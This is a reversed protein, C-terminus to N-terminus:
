VSIDSLDWLSTFLCSNGEEAVFTGNASRYEISPPDKVKCNIETDIINTYSYDLFDDLNYSNRTFQELLIRALTSVSPYYHDVLTYLEWLSSDLARTKSPDLEQDLFPDNFISNVSTRHILVMCTPHRKLFNYVLPIIMIIGGPNASLSLRSMKKIFSAVIIAPLHTSSLFLDVLKIFRGRYRIHFLNEDFLTYLKTYFNPYDLNHNQILYFLGNLALLSVAGGADYSDTLFDMLLQPKSLFPLVNSHLINLIQKYQHHKLPLELAAIWCKSFVRKQRSIQFKQMFSESCSVWCKKIDLFIPKMNILFVLLNKTFGKALISNEDKCSLIEKIVKYANIYFYYQLDMYEDLYEKIIYNLISVNIDKNLLISRLVRYYQDNMFGGGKCESESRILGLLLVFAHGQEEFKSMSLKKLLKIIFCVYAERYSVYIEEGYLKSSINKPQCLGGSRFLGCFIKYVSYEAELSAEKSFDKYLETLEVNQCSEKSINVQKKLGLNEGNKDTKEGFDNELTCGM